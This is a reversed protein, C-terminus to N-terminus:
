QLGRIKRNKQLPSIREPLRLTHLIYPNLFCFAFCMSEPHMMNLPLTAIVIWADNILDTDMLYDAVVDIRTSEQLHYRTHPSSGGSCWRRAAIRGISSLSSWTGLSTLLHRTRQKRTSPIVHSRRTGLQRTMVALKKCLLLEVTLSM